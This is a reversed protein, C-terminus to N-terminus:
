ESARPFFFAQLRPSAHFIQHALSDVSGKPLKVRKEGFCAGCEDKDTGAMIPIISKKQAQFEFFQSPIDIEEKRPRGSASKV